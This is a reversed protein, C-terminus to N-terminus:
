LAFVLYLLQNYQRCQYKSHKDVEMVVEMAVEMAKPHQVVVMAKPHQVVAM